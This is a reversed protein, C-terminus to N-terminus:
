TGPTCWDARETLARRRLLVTTLAGATLLGAGV